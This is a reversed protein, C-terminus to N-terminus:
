QQAFSSLQRSLMDERLQIDGARGCPMGSEIWNFMTLGLRIRVEISNESLRSEHLPHRM